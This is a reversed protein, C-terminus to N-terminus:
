RAGVVSITATVRTGRGPPSTVGFVGGVAEVRDRLGQLGSGSREDAGGGGDDAVDVLLVDGVASVRVSISSASAHRQANTVAEAVVYYATAEITDDFRETSLEVLEVPVPSRAAIEEIAAALGFNTLIPPHIGHALERLEEIARQLEGQADALLTAAQQPSAGVTEKAEHLRYALTLLRQQAGDHLNHELRRREADAAEVLRARSATLGQAFRERESVVAALCLTSFASVAIFLQANLVSRTVSDFAFPGIYHTTNWVTLVVGAAVAFTAGRAGFRLAAWILAPFMLYALPRDSRLALGSLVVACVLLAVAEVARRGRPLRGPPGYWALAFPVVVVAGSFDGLWWTRWVDALEDRALVDSALVSLPGVTASVATGASIGVFMAGIGRVSELPSGQRVLRRIILAGLVVELVNGCTQGLASGLPLAVYDNAFLDGILAGPWFRLGGLYLFAIGVGAPFWVIAAVPGAFELEYGVRAAGYYLAALALAGLVYRVRADRVLALPRWATNDSHGVIEFSLQGV